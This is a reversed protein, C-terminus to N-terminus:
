GKAAAQVAATLKPLSWDDVTKGNVLVTPTGTLGRKSFDDTVTVTWGQYKLSNIAPAIASEQAGAQVALSILQSDPLGASNEAPQNAYLLDHYKLFVSPDANMVAAVANLARTSYNTSSYRDLIAVPHYELRVTGADAWARLQASDAAEFDKCIPCQFDEWLQVTVKATSKGIIIAGNSVNAPPAVAAAAKAQQDHRATQILVAATVIVVLAAAVAAGIVGARRRAEKRAADARMEAAKERATKAQRANTM